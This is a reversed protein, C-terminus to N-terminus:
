VELTTQVRDTRFTLNSDLSHFLQEVRQLLAEIDGRLDDLTDRDGLKYDLAADLLSQANSSVWNQSILHESFAKFIERDKKPELGRTVLLSRAIAVLADYLRNERLARKAEDVDLAVVDMVGAGCEGPGRGALSFDADCGFDRYFEPSEEYSPVKEYKEALTHLYDAGWRNILDELSEDKRYEVAATTWFERLLAPVAKAPVKAAVRGLKADGEAVRGGAFLFYNPYLKGGARSAGGCLGVLSIPHHGCSNPCGSIRIPVDFPLEVDNCATEIASALGRSLCLGLKCTSAGTCTICKISKTPHFSLDTGLLSTYLDHLRPESVNRLQLGQQQTTRLTGDGFQSASDAIIKLSASTILGLKLPIDVISLNVQKQPLAYKSRWAEFRQDSYKNDSGKGSTPASGGDQAIQPTSIGECKVQDLEQKYMRRFEEAGFRQVVFRLRAKNRNTRDGYKDFLRKVAEAVAFVEQAPVFEEILVGVASHAGLGGGAYVSFGYTGDQEHAFFGLDTVSALSCDQGCGSFAVKFKRPLNFNARDTILYETLALAYPTVDFAEGRCIGAHPCASINRVTNGGGGRTSLGSDILRELILPTDQILVRHIQLDQRTTVHVIGDGFEEALDAILKVQYPLFIGAAGRIRVMYTDNERQEYIGM